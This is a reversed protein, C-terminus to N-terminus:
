GKGFPDRWCQCPQSRMADLEVELRGIEDRGARGAHSWRAAPQRQDLCQKCLGFSQPDFDPVFSGGNVQDTVSVPDCAHNRKPGVM